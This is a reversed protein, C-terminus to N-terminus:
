VWLSILIVDRLVVNDTIDEKVEEVIRQVGFM